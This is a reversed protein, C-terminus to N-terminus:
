AVLFFCSPSAHGLQGLKQKDGKLKKIRKLHMMLECVGLNAIKGRMKLAVPYINKRICLPFNQILTM